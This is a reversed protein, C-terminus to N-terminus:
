ILTNFVDCPIGSVDIGISQSEKTQIPHSIYLVVEWSNDFGTHTDASTVAETSTIGNKRRASNKGSKLSIRAGSDKQLTPPNQQKDAATPM